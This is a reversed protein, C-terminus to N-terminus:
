GQRVKILLWEVDLEVALCIFEADQCGGDGLGEKWAPLEVYVDPELWQIRM